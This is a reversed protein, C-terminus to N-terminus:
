SSPIKLGSAGQPALGRAHGHDPHLGGSKLGSAGQPALRRGRQLRAATWCRKLGSAGQPALCRGVPQKQPPLIKEIWEGRAPRSGRFAGACASKFTKLGSAGQPALRSLQFAQQVCLPRKLGSAGQPALGTFRRVRALPCGNEIWEGRAPRSKRKTRVNCFVVFMKLGSAGQPALRSLRSCFHSWTIKLGSAGQPALCCVIVFITQLLYEHQVTWKGVFGGLPAEPLFVPQALLFVPM